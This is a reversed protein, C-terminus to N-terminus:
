ALYAVSAPAELGAVLHVFTQWLDDFLVERVIHQEYAAALTAETTGPVEPRLEVSVIDDGSRETIRRGVVRGTARETFVMEDSGPRHPLIRPAGVDIVGLESDAAPGTVRTGVIASVVHTRPPLHDPLSTEAGASADRVAREASARILDRNEHLVVAVDRMWTELRALEREDFTGAAGSGQPYTTATFRGIEPLTEWELLLRTFAGLRPMLMLRSSGQTAQFHLDPEALLGDIDIAAGFARDPLAIGVTLGRWLPPRTGADVVGIV